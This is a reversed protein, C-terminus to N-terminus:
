QCSSTYWSNASAETEEEEDTIPDIYLAVVYYNKGCTQDPTDLWETAYPDYITTIPLYGPDQAVDARYIRFGTIDDRYENQYHWIITNGEESETGDVGYPPPPPPPSTLEFRISASRGVGEANEADLTYYGAETIPNPIVYVSTAPQPAGDLTVKSAAEVSWSLKAMSRVEVRYVYTPADQGGEIGVFEVRDQLPDVGEARFYVISPAPLSTPTPTPTETPPLTPEPTPTPTWTSTPTPELVTLQVTQSASLDGNYATLVFFTSREVSVELNGTAPLNSTQGFDPGTIEINSTQGKVLWSLLIKEGSGMVIETPVATFYEIIPTEPQPLVSVERILPESEETEYYAVLVYQVTGVQAPLHSINGNPPLTDPLPSISVKEAGSVSWEISVSEGLTVQAPQVNFIQVIPPPVPTGTPTLVRITLPFKIEEDWSKNSAVLTFTTDQELTFSRTGSEIEAGEFTQATGGYEIRLADADFVRWRLLVSEGRMIPNRDASFEAIKPPVPTQYVRVEQSAGFWRPALRSLWNSATLKYTTNGEPLATIEARPAQVEGINSIELNVFRSTDWGLVVPTEVMVVASQGGDVTFEDITPRFIWVILVALLLAILAMLLPGILPRSKVEGMRSQPTQQEELLMATITCRHVRKRLGVLRRSNPTIRVPVFTEGPAILLEVQKVPTAEGEVPTEEEATGTGQEQGGVLFEFMCSKEADEGDLRIHADGNGKNHVSVHILGSRKFWSVTQEKPSIDSLAFDHYPAITLLAGLQSRRGYMPSAVVISLPYTQARSTPHRPPVIVVTLSEKAADHLRFQSSKSSNATITVWQAPVGEVYVEFDAELDGGNTVTLEYLAAQEVSIAQERDQFDVVIYDDLEDPPVTLLPIPPVLVPVEASDVDEPLPPEPMVAPVAVESEHLILVYGDIEAASWNELEQPVNPSLRQGEVVMEDEPSLLMIRYPREGHILVAHFPAVRPGDLVIDNEPNSGINTSGRVPDLDYFRIDGTPNIIELRSQFSM